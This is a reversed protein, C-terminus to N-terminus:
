RRLGSSTSAQRRLGMAVGDGLDDPGDDRRQDDREQEDDRPLREVGDLDHRGIRLGPDLGDGALELPRELVEVLAPSFM